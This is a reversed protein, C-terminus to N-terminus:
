AIFQVKKSRYKKELKILGPLYLNSVPCDTGLFALVVARHKDFSFLARRNGRLDRLSSGNPAKAGIATVNAPEMAVLRVAPAWGFALLIFLVLFESAATRMTM